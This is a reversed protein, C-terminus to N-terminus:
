IGTFKEKPKEKWKEVNEIYLMLEELGNAKDKLRFTEERDKERRISVDLDLLMKELISTIIRKHLKIFDLERSDLKM